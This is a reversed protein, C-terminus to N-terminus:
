ARREMRNVRLRKNEEQRDKEQKGEQRVKEWLNGLGHLFSQLCHVMLTM